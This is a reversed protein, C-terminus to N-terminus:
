AKLHKEILTKLVDATQLGVLREVQSGDKFLILTPIGTVSFSSATSSNADVNLKGVTIKGAYDDAIKELTPALMRCPMCWDAYFDVLVLGKAKKVKENFNADTLVVENSM